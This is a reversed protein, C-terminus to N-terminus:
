RRRRVTICRRRRAQSLGKLGRIGFRVATLTILTLVVLFPKLSRTRQDAKLTALFDTWVFGM